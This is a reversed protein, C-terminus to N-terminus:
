LYQRSQLESTHEESRPLTFNGSYVSRNNLVITDGPQARNLALQLTSSSNVTWTGGQTPPNWTTDIYVQPPAPNPEQAPAALTFMAAIVICLTSIVRKQWALAPLWGHSSNSQIRM